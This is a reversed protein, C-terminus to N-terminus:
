RSHLEADANVLSEAVRSLRRDWAEEEDLSQALSHGVTEEELIEAFARACGYGAILYHGMHQACSIVAADLVDPQAGCEAMEMWGSVIGVMGHSRGPEPAAGARAMAKLLREERELFKSAFEELVQRLPLHVAKRAMEPLAKARHREASLLDRMEEVLLDRMTNLKM